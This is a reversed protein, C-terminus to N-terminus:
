PRSAPAEAPQPPTAAEPTVCPALIVFDVRTRISYPTVRPTLPRRGEHYYYSRQTDWTPLKVMRTEGPPVAVPLTDSRQHLQRGELDYYDLTVALLRLARATLNTLMFSEYASRLPKDYGSLEIQAATPQRLTDATAVTNRETRVLPTLRRGRLTNDASVHLSAATLLGALVSKLLNTVM